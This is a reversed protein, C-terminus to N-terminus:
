SMNILIEKLKSKARNLQSKSTSETINLENAIERHSYDEFMYLSFVARYGAPLDCMAQKVNAISFKSWATENYDIENADGGTDYTMEVLTIKKKKLANLSKNVVIRKLWGGFARLEKVQDLTQFATVFSEQLVDEADERQNLIRMSTHFMAKSYLGYIQHQASPNGELCKELLHQNLNITTSM